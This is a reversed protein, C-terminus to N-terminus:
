SKCQDKRRTDIIYIIQWGKEGKVLQFSNVGCHSFQEDVYFKYDTWVSALPGDILIKTFVIREDHKQKHPTGIFKIFDPVSETRVTNKGEKSVITQLISNPAFASAALTSDSTKMGLFLNGVTKKVADEDVSQALIKKSFFVCMLALFVIKKM